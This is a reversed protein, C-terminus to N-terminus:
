VLGPAVDRRPPGLLEERACRFVRGVRDLEAVFFEEVEGPLEVLPGVELGRELEQHRRAGIRFQTGAALIGHAV